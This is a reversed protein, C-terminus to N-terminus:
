ATFSKEAIVQGSPQDVFTITVSEGNDFEAGQGLTNDGYQFGSGMLLVNTEVAGSGDSSIILTDGTQFKTDTGVGSQFTISASSNEFKIDTESFTIPDSGGHTLTVNNTSTDINEVTLSAQPATQTTEAGIGLTFAGVVAALIVAIAVVLVIGIVPAVAGEDRLLTQIRPKMPKVIYRVELKVAM